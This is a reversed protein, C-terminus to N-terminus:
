GAHYRVRGHAFESKGFPNQWDQFHCDTLSMMVGSRGVADPRAFAEDIYDVVKRKGASVVSM